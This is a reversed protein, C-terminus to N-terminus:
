ASGAVTPRGLLWRPQRELAHCCPLPTPSIGAGRRVGGCMCVCRPRARSVLREVVAPPVPHATTRYRTYRLSENTPLHAVGGTGGGGTWRWVSLWARRCLERWWQDLLNTRTGGLGRTPRLGAQGQNPLASLAPPGAWLRHPAQQRTARNIQGGRSERVRTPLQAVKGLAAGPLLSTTSISIREAWRRRRGRAASKATRACSRPPTQITPRHVAQDPGVPRATDRTWAPACGTVLFRRM